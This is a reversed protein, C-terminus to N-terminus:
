SHPDRPVETGRAPGPGAKRTGGLMQRQVLLFAGVAMVIDGVSVVRHVPYPPGLPIVDGLPWLRATSDMLRYTLVRGTAIAAAQGGLGAAALADASIPMRMGNALIVVFNLAIGLGVLSMWPVSRNAWVAYLLCAYACFFVYPAAVAAYRVGRLGLALIAAEAAFAVVIAEVRKLPMSGLSSLSGGRIKGVAVSVILTDVLM